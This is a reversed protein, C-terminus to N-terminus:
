SVTIHSIHIKESHGTSSRPLLNEASVITVGVLFYPTM